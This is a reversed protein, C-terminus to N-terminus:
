LRGPFADLLTRTASKVDSASLISAIIAVGAAGARVIDPIRSVTVGGIAFVPIRVRRSVEEVARLGIPPGYARKTPTDYVPGLVVFDAGGSEARVAEATSHASVGILPEPGVLRRVVAVPLGDARVHVGDAKVGLAVDVRDNIFLRAKRSATLRRFTHALEVLARTDLDRERLQVAQVGESLANDVVEALPRGNTQQRDTVLYVRFDVRSM